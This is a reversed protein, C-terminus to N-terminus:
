KRLLSKKCFPCKSPTPQLHKLLLGCHRCFNVKKNKKDVAELDELLEDLLDDGNIVSSGGKNETKIPTKRASEERACREDVAKKLAAVLEAEERAKRLEDEKAKRAAEKRARREEEAKKM